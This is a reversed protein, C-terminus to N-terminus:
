TTVIVMRDSKLDAVASEISLPTLVADCSRCQSSCFMGHWAAQGAPVSM